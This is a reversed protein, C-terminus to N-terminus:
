LGQQKAWEAKVLEYVKALPMGTEQAIRRCDEFEPSAKRVQGFSATKVRATGFGTEVPLTERQMCYREMRRSRIGLTSTEALVIEALLDETGPKAIVTLMYAPRNKKMFIPTFFVDLAGAELLRTMTYGLIESTTDDINTELVIIEDKPPLNGARGPENGAKESLEYERGSLRDKEPGELTEGLIVRLANLRGTNRKGHGYGTKEIKMQPMVGFSSALCKIIGMGTPTVLETGVDESVLPIGSGALMEVVAPVPVPIIGHRCEIFGSGDHLVSSYVREVGLLELCIATGAIDVISDIAGVEHFHVENIPKGHVKAEAAAIERFVKKSFAKINSSLSSREIIEEIEPLGREGNKHVHDHSHADDHSHPHTHDHTHVHDHDHTHGLDHDQGHEHEHDHGHEHGEEPDTLVVNIDTGSIGNVTKSVIEIRYGELNLKALEDLFRKRDIGLDLLAGITMDGSIGSFCDFYLIKM